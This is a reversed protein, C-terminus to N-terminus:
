HSLTATLSCLLHPSVVCERYTWLKLQVPYVVVECPGVLIQGSALHAYFQLGINLILGFLYNLTATQSVFEYAM